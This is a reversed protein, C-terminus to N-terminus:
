TTSGKDFTAFVPAGNGRIEFAQALWTVGSGITWNATQQPTGNDLEISAQASPTSHGSTNALTTFNSGATPVGTNNRGMVGITINTDLSPASALSASPTTNSGGAGANQVIAESLAGTKYYYGTVEQTLFDIGTITQAGFDIKLTDTISSA